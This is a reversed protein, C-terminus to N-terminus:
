LKTKIDTTLERPLALCQAKNTMKLCNKQKTQTKYIYTVLIPPLSLNSLFCIEDSLYFCLGPFIVFLLSGSIHNGTRREQGCLDNQCHDLAFVSM